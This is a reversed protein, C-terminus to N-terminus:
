TDELVEGYADAEAKPLQGNIQVGVSTYLIGPRLPHMATTPAGIRVMKKTSVASRSPIWASVSM